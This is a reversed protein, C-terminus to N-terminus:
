GAEAMTATIVGDADAKLDSYGLQNRALDLARKARELRGEAEDKTWKKRDFDAVSAYGSTRLKTYRELDAIAQTLNSTAAGFEAEASEAQLKLDLPDLRAVIDGAKVRDGVNALRAVIKGGVKLGEAIMLPHCFAMMSRQILFSADRPEVGDFEGSEIGDRLVMEIINRIGDVHTQIADWNNEMAVLVMDHVRKEAILNERHYDLVELFLKELRNAASGRSRAVAWAKADLESLCRQCIAEVIANKSAFFRYVNAPSMGLEAAIDAVATKAFGLRRFLAEATEIIRARTDDPKTKLQANM